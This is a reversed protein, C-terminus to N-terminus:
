IGEDSLFKKLKEIEEIDEACTNDVFKHIGLTVPMILFAFILALKHDSWEEQQGIIYGVLWLLSYIYYFIFIGLLLLLTNM